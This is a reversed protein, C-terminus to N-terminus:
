KGSLRRSDLKKREVLVAIAILLAALIALDVRTPWQSSSPIVDPVAESAQVQTPPEGSEGITLGAVTTDRDADSLPGEPEQGENGDTESADTEESSENALSTNTAIAFDSDGTSNSAANTSEDPSTTTPEGFSPPTSEGPPPPTLADPGTTTTPEGPPPPPAAEPSTTTTPPTTTTPSEPTTTPASEEPVGATFCFTVHGVGNPIFDVTGGEGAEWMGSLVQGSGVGSGVKVGFRFAPDSNNNTWTGDADISIAGAVNTEVTTLTGNLTLVKWYDGNWAPDTSSCEVSPDGLAPESFVTMLSALLAFAALLALTRRRAGFGWTDTM